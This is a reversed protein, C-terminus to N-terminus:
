LLNADRFTKDTKLVVAAAEKEPSVRQSESIPDPVLLLCLDWLCVQLFQDELLWKRLGCLQIRYLLAPMSLSLVGALLAKLSSVSLFM